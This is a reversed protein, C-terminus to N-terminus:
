FFRSYEQAKFHKGAFKSIKIKWRIKKKFWFNFIRNNYCSLRWRNIASGNLFFYMKDIFNQRQNKFYQFIRIKDELKYITLFLISLMNQNLEINAQVLCQVAQSTAHVPTFRSFFYEGWGLFFISSHYPIPFNNLKSKHSIYVAQKGGSERWVMAKEAQNRDKKGDMYLRCQLIHIIM